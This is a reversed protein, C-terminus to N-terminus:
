NIEICNDKLEKFSVKKEKLAKIIKIAESTVKYSYDKDDIKKEIKKILKKKDDFSHCCINLEKFLKSIEM